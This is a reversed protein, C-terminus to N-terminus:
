TECSIVMRSEYLRRLKPTPKQLAKATVVSVIVQQIEGGTLDDGRHGPLLPFIEDSVPDETRQSHRVAVSSHRAIARAVDRRGAILELTLSMALHTVTCNFPPAIGPVSFRKNLSRWPL